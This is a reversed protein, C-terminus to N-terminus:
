DIGQGVVAIHAAVVKVDSLPCNRDVVTSGVVMDLVPVVVETAVVM